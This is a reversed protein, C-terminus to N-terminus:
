TKQLINKGEPLRGKGKFLGGRDGMRHYIVFITVRWLIKETLQKMSGFTYNIDLIKNLSVLCINLTMMLKMNIGVDLIMIMVYRVMKENWKM